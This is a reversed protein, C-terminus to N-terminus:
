RSLNKQIANVSNITQLFKIKLKFPTAYDIKYYFFSCYLKTKDTLKSLCIFNKVKNLFNKKRLSYFKQNSIFASKASINFCYVIKKFTM